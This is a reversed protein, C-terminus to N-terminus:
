ALVDDPSGKELSAAERSEWESVTRSKFHSKLTDKVFFSWVWNHSAIPTLTM